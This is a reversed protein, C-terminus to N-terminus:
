GPVFAVRAKGLFVEAIIDIVMGQAASPQCWGQSQYRHGFIVIASYKIYDGESGTLFTGEDGFGQYNVGATRAGDCQWGETCVTM